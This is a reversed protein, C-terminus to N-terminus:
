AKCSTRGMRAQCPRQSNKHKENCLRCPLLCRLFGGGKEVTRGNRGVCPRGIKEPTCKACAIPREYCVATEGRKRCLSGKSRSGCQRCPPLCVSFSTATEACVHGILKDTCQGCKLRQGEACNRVGNGLGTASLSCSSEGTSSTCELCSMDSTQSGGTPSASPSAGYAGPSASSASGSTSRPISAEWTKQWSLLRHALSVAEEPTTWRTWGSGVYAHLSALFACFDFLNLNTWTEGNPWASNNSVLVGVLARTKDDYTYYNLIADVGLHVTVKLAVWAQLYVVVPSRHGFAGAGINGTNIIRKIGPVQAGLAQYFAMYMSCVFQLFIKAGPRSSLGTINPAAVCLWFCEVVEETIISDITKHKFNYDSLLVKSGDGFYKPHVYFLHQMSLLRPCADLNELAPVRHSALWHCLVVINSEFTAIEEQVWGRGLVGGGLRKNAFNVYVEMPKYEYGGPLAHFELRGARGAPREFRVVGYVTVGKLPTGVFKFADKWIDGFVWPKRLGLNPDQRMKEAESRLLSEPFYLAKGRNNRLCQNTKCSNKMQTNDCKYAQWVATHM